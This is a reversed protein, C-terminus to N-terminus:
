YCMETLCVAEGSCPTTLPVSDQPQPVAGSLCEAVGVCAPANVRLGDCRTWVLWLLVTRGCVASAAGRFGYVCVFVRVPPRSPMTPRTTMALPTLTPDLHVTLAGRFSRRLHSCKVAANVASSM